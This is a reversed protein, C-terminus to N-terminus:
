FVMRKCEVNERGFNILLGLKMGTGRLKNLLQAEHVAQYVADTKLEVAIRDAVLLDAAYDRVIVGKFQVQVQPELEAKVGRSLLEVQM